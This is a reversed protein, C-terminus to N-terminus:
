IFYHLPKIVIQLLLSQEKRTEKEEGVIFKQLDQTLCFVWQPNLRMHPFTKLHSKM